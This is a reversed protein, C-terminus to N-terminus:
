SQTQTIDTDPNHGTPTTDRRADDIEDNTDPGGVGRLKIVYYISAEQYTTSHAEKSSAIVLGGSM